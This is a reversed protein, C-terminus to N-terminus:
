KGDQLKKAFSAGVETHSSKKTMVIFPMMLALGTLESEEVLTFGGADESPIIRWQDKGYLGMPAEFVIILGDETDVFASITTVDKSGFPGFPIRVTVARYEPQVGAPAVTSAATVLSEAAQTSEVVENGILLPQLSQFTSHDHLLAIASVRDISPDLPTKTSVSRTSNFVTFM